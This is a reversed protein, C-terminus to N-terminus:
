AEMEHLLAEMNQAILGRMSDKDKMLQINQVRHALMDKWEPKAAAVQHLATLARRVATPKEDDLVDLADSLHRELVNQEDWQAQACLLRFGRVRMVYQASRFMASFRELDGYFMNAKLSISEIMTLAAYGREANKEQM